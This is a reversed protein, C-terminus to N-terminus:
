KYLVAKLKEVFAPDLAFLEAVMKELEEGAVPDLTLKAKEAEALFAKDSLTEQFAKRLIQVREKPTGPPAVFPRSYASGDQIGVQILRRTEDTKALSIALPVRALDPLPKSTVQLIPIAEGADLSKRWTARMSEWAWCAGAVEGSEAALRIEATGKYGTVVQIPLGLAAKLIRPTNDTPAGPAVAGIKIPTKASMLQEVSTIGSAKTVSCVVEEKVTAGIFEFKRADFEIGPQGLVQGLVLTGPFHALSLGDPKAVRYLHNASILGGAGTMNEVVIGPSGPIHKGLHRAVLRAYTDFGGGPALGVIIRVTKGAFFSQAELPSSGALGLVVMVITVFAVMRRRM